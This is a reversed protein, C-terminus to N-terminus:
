KQLSAKIREELRAGIPKDASAYHTVANGNPGADTVLYKNFNWTPAKGSAEALYKYVLNANSGKVHTPALMTFTIGFNYFCIKAAKAEDKEEQNFDDSSFGIVRLGKSQYKQHLAELEKLQPTFGCYSATNVFLMPGGAYLDCINVNETSHLKKFSHNLNESCQTAMNSALTMPSLLLLMLLTTLKM